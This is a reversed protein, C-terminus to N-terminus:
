KMQWDRLMKQYNAGIPQIQRLRNREFWRYRSLESTPAPTGSKWKAAMCITIDHRSPFKVPYVGVFRPIHIELGSKRCQRMATQAFSEGRTMRGGLLAWVHKYPLITRWGMLFTHDRWVITDVCPIPMKKTVEIWCNEEIMELREPLM